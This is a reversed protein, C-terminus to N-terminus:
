PRASSEGPVGVIEGLGFLPPPVAAARLEARVTELASRILPNSFIGDSPDLSRADLYRFAFRALTEGDARDGLVQELWERRSWLEEALGERYIAFTATWARYEALLGRDMGAVLWARLDRQDNPTLDALRSYTSSLKVFRKPLEARSYLKMGAWIQDDLAHLTEHVFIVMWDDPHIRAFDMYISGTARHFGADLPTDPAEAFSGTVRFIPMGAGYKAHFLAMMARLSPSPSAELRRLSNKFLSFYFTELFNQRDPLPALCTELAARDLAGARYTADLSDAARVRLEYELHSLAVREVNTAPVSIPHGQTYWPELLACDAAQAPAFASASALIGLAGLAFLSVRAARIAVRTSLSSTV